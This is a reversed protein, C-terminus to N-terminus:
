APTLPITKARQERKLRIIDNPCYTYCRGCAVCNANDPEFSVRQRRIALGLLTAGVVVGAFGGWIQSGTLFRARIQLAQDFLEQKPKGTDRFAKSADTTDKFAGADEAAIREALNVTPNLYSFPVALSRGLVVGLILLVPILAAFVVINRKRAPLQAEPVPGEPERIAGYPCAVDCIQCHMCDQPSLTVNFKSFRSLVSLLAGYPCAFRCYPRGIMTGVLLFGAGLSLMFWSGTRRYFAVFPDYECFLFASGTAAFLIGAGLYLFPLISLGKELWLPLAKPKVVVLDQLCGLPCVAACFTRGFFLTFVLPLLFFALVAWPLHYGPNFMALAVDQTSGVSCICGKRYFGFYFASFVTLGLILARSRKKLVFYTSVCLAVFLVLVDLYYLAQARPAPMATPPFKYGNDFDPPPFREVGFVPAVTLFLLFALWGWKVWHNRGSFNLQNM